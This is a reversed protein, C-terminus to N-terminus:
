SRGEDHRALLARAMLIVDGDVGHGKAANYCWIVMRSNEPTYGIRPIIRDVSPAFVHALHRGKQDIVFPLGTVECVGAKVRELFWEKSLSFPLGRRKARAQASNHLACAQGDQTKRYQLNIFKIKYNNQARFISRVAVMHDRNKYYHGRFYVKLCAKCVARHGDRSDGVRNIRHFETLPKVQLCKSCAKVSRCDTSPAAHGWSFYPNPKIGSTM